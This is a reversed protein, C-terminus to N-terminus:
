GAPSAGDAPGLGLEERMRNVHARTVTRIQQGLVVAAEAASLGFARGIAGAADEDSDVDQLVNVLVDPQSFAVTVQQRLARTNRKRSDDLASGVWDALEDILAALPLSTRAVAERHEIAFALGAVTDRENRRTGSGADGRGGSSRGVLGMRVHGASM